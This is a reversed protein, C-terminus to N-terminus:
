YFDYGNSIAVQKFALKDRYLRKSYQDYNLNLKKLINQKSEMGFIVMLNVVGFHEMAIILLEKQQVIVEPDDMTSSMDLWGSFEDFSIRFNSNAPACPDARPNIGDCRSRPKYKRLLNNINLYIYQRIWTSLSYEPNYKEYKKTKWYRYFLEGAAFEKTENILLYIEWSPQSEYDSGHMYACLIKIKSRISWIEKGVFERSFFVADFLQRHKNLDVTMM